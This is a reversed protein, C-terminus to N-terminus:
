ADAIEPCAKLFDSCCTDAAICGIDCTCMFNRNQDGGPIGGCYNRGMEEDHCKWQATPDTSELEYHCSGDSEEAEPWYNIAYPDTCGVSGRGGGCLRSCSQPCIM